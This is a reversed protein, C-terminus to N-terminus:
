VQHVISSDNVGYKLKFRAPDKEKLMLNGKRNVEDTFKEFEEPSNFGDVKILSSRLLMDNLSRNPWWLNERMVKRYIPTGPLPQLNSFSFSDAGSNYAFEVTKQIEEYTEGPYGLIWYTHVLM